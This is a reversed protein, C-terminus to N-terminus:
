ETEFFAVNLFVLSVFFFIVIGVISAILLPVNTNFLSYFFLGALFISVALFYSFTVIKLRRSPRRVQTYAIRERKSWVKGRSPHEVEGSYKIIEKGTREDICKITYNGPGYIRLLENEIFDRHSLDFPPSSKEYIVVRETKGDKESVREIIYKRM